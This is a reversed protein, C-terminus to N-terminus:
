LVICGKDNVDDFNAEFLVGQDSIVALLCSKNEYVVKIVSFFKSNKIVSSKDGELRIKRDPFEKLVLFTVIKKDNEIVEGTSQLTVPIVENKQNATAEWIKKKNQYLALQQDNKLQTYVYSAGFLFILFFLLLTEKRDTSM